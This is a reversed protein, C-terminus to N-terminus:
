ALGASSGTVGVIVISEDSSTWVAQSTVDEVSGDTHIASLGLQIISGVPSEIAGPNIQLQVVEAEGVNLQSSASLSSNPQPGIDSDGPRQHGTAAPDTCRASRVSDMRRGLSLEQLSILRPPGTEAM